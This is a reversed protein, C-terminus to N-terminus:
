DAKAAVAEIEILFDPSALAGIIIMTSAPAIAGVYKDRVARFGGMDGADVLYTNIRVLDEAAMGAEALVALINDFVQKAQAEIGDPIAGDPALAVQGSIYLWRANAPAEVGHSYASLPAAVTDPNHKALM